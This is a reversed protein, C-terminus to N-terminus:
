RAPKKRPAPAPKKKKAAAPEACEVQPMPLGRSAAFQRARGLAGGDATKSDPPPKPAKSKVM